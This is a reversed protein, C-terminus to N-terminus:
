SDWAKYSNRTGLLAGIGRSVLNDVDVADTRGALVLEEEEDVDRIEGKADSLPIVGELEVWLVIMSPSLRLGSGPDM